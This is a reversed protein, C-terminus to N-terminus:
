PQEKYNPKGHKSAYWKRVQTATCPRCGSHLGDSTARSPYFESRPKAEKCYCCVKDTNPDGGAQVVRLRVHLLKHYNGDQCIVLNTNANNGADGDVHHVPHRGLLPRGLAREAIVVHECVFGTPHQTRPHSPSKIGIYGGGLTTRGGCWKHHAAGTCLGKHCESRDRITVGLTRLRDRITSPDVGHETALAYSSRRDDLYEVILRHDEELSWGRRIM